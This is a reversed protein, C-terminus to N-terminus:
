RPYVAVETAKVAVWVDAAGVLDLEAVAAPTVEAVIPPTADVQVRARDALIELGAVTGQWVNRASGAPRDRHLTVASPHVTAFVPGQGDHDPVTLEGGGDVALHGHRIRAATSTSASSAPSGHPGRARAVERM